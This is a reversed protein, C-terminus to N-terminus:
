PNRLERLLRSSVPHVNNTYIIDKINFFNIHNRVNVDSMLIFINYYCKTGLKKHILNGLNM